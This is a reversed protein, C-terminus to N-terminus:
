FDEDNGENIWPVCLIGIFFLGIYAFGLYHHPITVLAGMLPRLYWHPIALVFDIVESIPWYEFNAFSYAVAMQGPWASDGIFRICM